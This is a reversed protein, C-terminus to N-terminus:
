NRGMFDYLAGIIAYQASMKNTRIGSFHNLWQADRDVHPGSLGIKVSGQRYVWRAGLFPDSHTRGGAPVPGAFGRM